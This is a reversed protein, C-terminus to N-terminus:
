PRVGVASVCKKKNKNQCITVMPTQLSPTAKYQSLDLYEKPNDLISIPNNLVPPVTQHYVKWPVNYADGLSTSCGAGYCAFVPAGLFLLLIISSLKKM